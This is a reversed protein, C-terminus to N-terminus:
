VVERGRVMRWRPCTTYPRPRELLCTESDACDACYPARPGPRVWSDGQTMRRELDATGSHRHSM